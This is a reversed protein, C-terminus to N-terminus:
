RQFATLYGPKAVTSKNPIVEIGKDPLVASDKEAASVNEKAHGLLIFLATLYLGIVSGVVPSIMKFIHVNLLSDLQFGIWFCGGMCIPMIFFFVIPFKLFFEVWGTNANQLKRLM